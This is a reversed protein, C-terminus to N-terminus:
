KKALIFYLDNRFPPILKQILAVISKAFSVSPVTGRYGCDLVKFGVQDFFSRLEGKGYERVHGMHGLQHLKSWEEYLDSACGTTAGKFLVNRFTKIGLGNPTEIYLLAQDNMLRHLNRMSGILDLRLHEFIHSFYVIDFEAFDHHPEEVNFQEIQFPLSETGNFRSPDIDFAVVDEFIGRKHLVYPLGFPASGVDLFRKPESPHMKKLDLCINVQSHTADINDILYANFWASNKGVGSRQMEVLDKKIEEYIM